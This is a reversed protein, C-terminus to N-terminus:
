RKELVARAALMSEQQLLADREARTPAGARGGHRTVKIAAAASAARVAATENEGEALALAFAGHWVDGAGLTDVPTVAFAPMRQLATTPRHSAQHGSQGSAAHRERGDAVLVGAGGLTVCCWQRTQVAYQQLAAGLAAETNAAGSFDRLGAASFAVHTAAALLGGTQPVPVDADLVAPLGAQRARRLLCEAGTPWRTDALVAHVDDLTVETDVWAPDVPLAADTHNVILREGADDVFVASVSSRHGAYRRLHRCDVGHGELERRISDAISDDGVRAVLRAAGGLRAIAVAATAAPGGGVESFGTARYKEAGQPLRPTRFIFDHVAHGVCLVRKM